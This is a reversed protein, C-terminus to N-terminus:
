ATKIKSEIIKKVKEFNNEQEIYNNKKFWHWVLCVMSFWLFVLCFWHCLLRRTRKWLPPPPFVLACCTARFAQPLARTSPTTLTICAPGPSRIRPWINQGPDVILSESMDIFYQSIPCTVRCTPYNRRGDPYVGM